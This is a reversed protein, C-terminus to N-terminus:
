MNSKKNMISRVANKFGEISIPNYIQPYNKINKKNDTLRAYFGSGKDIPLALEVERNKGAKYTSVQFTDKELPNLRNGKPFKNIFKVLDKPLEKLDAPKFNNMVEKSGYDVINVKM